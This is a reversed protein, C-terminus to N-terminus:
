SEEALQGEVEVEAIPCTTSDGVMTPEVICAGPSTDRDLTTKGTAEYAAMSEDGDCAWTSRLTLLLTDMDLLVTTNLNSEVFNICAHEVTPDYDIIKGDTGNLRYEVNCANLVATPIHRAFFSVRGGGGGPWDSSIANSIHWNPTTTSLERCSSSQRVDIPGAIAAQGALSLCLAVRGAWSGLM